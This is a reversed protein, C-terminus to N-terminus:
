IGLYAKRIHENDALGSSAGELVIRGKEMVYGRSVVQLTRNVNQEVLLITLGNANLAELAEFVSETLQPALGLSPEDVLLLTPNSMLGRGIALMRREGGSLTGSLQRRREKLRPFLQFVYDVNELRRAPDRVTFAGMYLNEMVTMATFLNMSESILSIGLRCVRDGPQNHIPQGQFRVTGASPQLLGSVARLITSKGAGNPGILCIYEGRVLNLSVGWLVQLFDYKVDIADIELLPATEPITAAVTM